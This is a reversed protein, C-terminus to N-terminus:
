QVQTISWDTFDNNIEIIYTPSHDPRLLSVSYRYVVEPSSMLGICYVRSFGHTGAIARGVRNPYWTEAGDLFIILTKNKSYGPNKKEKEIKKNVAWMVREEGTPLKQPANPFDMASVHEVLFRLGNTRNIVLGDGSDDDQFIYDQNEVFSLVACFILNAWAERYRMRFVTGDTVPIVGSLHSNNNGDHLFLRGKRDRGTVMPQMEKLSERLDKIQYGKKFVEEMPSINIRSM